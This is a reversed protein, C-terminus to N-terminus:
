MLSLLVHTKDVAVYFKLRIDPVYVASTLVSSEFLMMIITM